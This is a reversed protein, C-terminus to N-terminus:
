YYFDWRGLSSDWRGHKNTRDCHERYVEWFVSCSSYEFLEIDILLHISGRATRPKIAPSRVEKAIPPKGLERVWGQLVESVKQYNEDDKGDFKCIGSHDKPILHSPYEEICASAEPVVKIYCTLKSIM